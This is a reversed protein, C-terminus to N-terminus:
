PRPGRQYRRLSVLFTPRWGPGHRQREFAIWGPDQELNEGVLSAPSEFYELLFDPHLREIHDRSIEQLRYAALPRENYPKAIVFESDPHTPHFLRRPLLYYSLFYLKQDSLVLIRSNSPTAAALYRIVDRNNDSINPLITQGSHLQYLPWDALRRGVSASAHYIFLGLWALISLRIIGSRLASLTGHGSSGSVRYFEICVKAFFPIAQRRLVWMAILLVAGSLSSWRVLWTAAAAAGHAEFRSYEDDAAREVAWSQVVEVPLFWAVAAILLLVCSSVVLGAKLLRNLLLSEAIM